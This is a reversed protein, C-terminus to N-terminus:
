NQYSEEKKETGANDFQLQLSPWVCFEQTLGLAPVISQNVATHTHTYDSSSTLPLILTHKNVPYASM